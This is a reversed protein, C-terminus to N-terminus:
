PVLRQGLATEALGDVPRALGIGTGAVTAGASHGHPGTGRSINIAGVADRHGTWGCEVCVCVCRTATM